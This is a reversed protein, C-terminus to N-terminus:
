YIAALSSPHVVCDAKGVIKCLKKARGADVGPSHVCLKFLTANTKDDIPRGARASARVFALYADLAKAGKGAKSCALVLQLYVSGDPGINYLHPAEELLQIAEQFAGNTSLAKIVLSLTKTTMTTRLGRDLLFNFVDFIRAAEMGEVCCATLVMNFITADLIIGDKIMREVTHLADLVKGHEAFGQIVMCYTASDPKADQSQSMEELIAQVERFEGAAVLSRLYVTYLVTNLPLGSHRLDNFVLRAQRIDKAHVCADLVSCFTIASPELGVDRLKEYLRFCKFNDGNQVHGKMMTNYGVTDLPLTCLSSAALSEAIAMCSNSACIALAKNRDILGLSFGLNKLVVLKSTFGDVDKMAAHCRVMRLFETNSPLTTSVLKAFFEAGRAYEKSEAACFLLLSWPDRADSEIMAVVHDYVALAEAYCRKKVCAHLVPLVIENFMEEVREADSGGM